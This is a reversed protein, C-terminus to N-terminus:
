AFIPQLLWPAGSLHLSTYHYAFRLGWLRIGSVPMELAKKYLIAATQRDGEAHCCAALITRKLALVPILKEGFDHTKAYQALLDITHDREYAHSSFDPGTISESHVLIHVTPEATHAKVIRPGTELLRVSLEVDNWIKAEPNWGGERRFLETRAMYCQTSLSGHMIAHYLHHSAPFKKKRQFAGDTGVNVADWGVIDVGPNAEAATMASAIHSPLMTDDSDFFMTWETEVLELGANRAAPAGPESCSILTVPMTKNLRDAEKRLASATASDSGNDVIILRDPRRTQSEVSKLTNLVM